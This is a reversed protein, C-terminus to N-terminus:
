NFAKMIKGDDTISGELDKQNTEHGIEDKVEDTHQSKKPYLMGLLYEQEPGNPAMDRYLEEKDGYIPGLLDQTFRNFILERVKESNDSKNVFLRDQEM